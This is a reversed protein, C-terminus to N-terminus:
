SRMRVLYADSGGASTLTGGGFDGSLGFAGTAVVDNTAADIAVANGVESDNGGFRKAWRYGGDKTYNAVFSDSYMGGNGAAALAGGGFDVSGDFWGTLTVNDSADLAIGAATANHFAGPVDPNGIRKAWMAAGDGAALKALFGVQMYGSTIQQSGFTATGNYITGAALVNGSHDFGVAFGRDADGGGFRKAWFAHGDAGSLKAVFVDERTGANIQGTGFNMSGFFMGTIALDGNADIAIANAWDRSTNWWNKAWIYAGTPSFKAVIADQDYFM